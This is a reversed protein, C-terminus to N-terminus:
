LVILVISLMNFPIFKAIEPESRIVGQTRVELGGIATEFRAQRPAYYGM